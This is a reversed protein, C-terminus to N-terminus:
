EQLSFSLNYAPLLRKKKFTLGCEVVHLVKTGRGLISGVSGASSPLTKVVPGSPFDLFWWKKDRIPFSSAQTGTGTRSGLSKPCTREGIQTKEWRWFLYIAPDSRLDGRPFGGHQIGTDCLSPLWVERSEVLGPNLELETGTPQTINPLNNWRGSGRYVLLFVVWIM